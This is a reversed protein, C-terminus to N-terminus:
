FTHSKGFMAVCKPERQPCHARYREDRTEVSFSEGDLLYTIPRDDSAGLSSIQETSEDMLIDKIHEIGLRM